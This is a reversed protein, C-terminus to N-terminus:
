CRLCVKDIGKSGVLIVSLFMMQSYTKRNSPNHDMIFSEFSLLCFRLAAVKGEPM